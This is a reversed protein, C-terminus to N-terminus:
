RGHAAPAIKALRHVIPGDYPLYRPPVLTYHRQHWPCPGDAIIEDDDQWGYGSFRIVSGDPHRKEERNCCYFFVERTEAVTRMAEFYTYVDKALMEQMSAVNVFIDAPVGKLLSADRARLAFLRPQPDSFDGFNVIDKGDRIFRTRADFDAGLVRRLYTLDALLNKDLNVVIVRAAPERLLVLSALLGLGDGIIVWTRTSDRALDLSTEIHALTLAQRLMTLDVARSTLRAVRSLLSLLERGNSFEDAIRFERRLMFRHAVRGWPTRRSHGGISYVEWHSSVAPDGDDRNQAMLFYVAEEGSMM